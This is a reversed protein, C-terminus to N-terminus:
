VQREAYRGSEALEAIIAPAVNDEVTMGYPTVNRGAGYLNVQRVALADRGLHLAVADIVREIAVMGQPGGFGRFATNSVTHTKLRHSVIEVAALWYCNDTHFMARDNIAPSLDTTAGCRSALDLRLGEIRGDDDFGVEYSILFDHRKGTMVMDDDRDARIKAPRGTKAAVLAAAAAFLAPQTEKGGFGGGMRRVEVTVDAHSIELMEAVLHQVESPHQTSSLIHVQGDEGPTALAV